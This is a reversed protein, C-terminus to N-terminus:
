VPLTVEKKERALNVRLKRGEFDVGNMKSLAQQADAENVFGIFGYGKSKGSFKDRVILVSEIQGTKEFFEKLSDETTNYNLNGVYIKQAM